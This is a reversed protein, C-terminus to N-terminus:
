VSADTVKFTIRIMGSANVVVSETEVDTIIPATADMTIHRIVQSSNGATDTAIITITNEGETLEYVHEFTGDDSIEIPVGNVTVSSITVGAVDASTSGAITVTEENTIIGEMPTTIELTPAKTSVVFTVVSEASENGDNDSVSLSITNVGDNLGTLIYSAVRADLNENESPPVLALPSAMNAFENEWVLEQSKDVGNVKFVVSSLNLGSYGVDSIRLKVDVTNTGLISMATPQIITAIPKTVELVRIKLQDGYEEDSATMTAVNGAQDEAYLAVTYVHDPENWSSIAPATMEVTWLGTSEDYVANVQKGDLVAYAKSINSM